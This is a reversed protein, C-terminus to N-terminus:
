MIASSHWHGHLFETKGDNMLLKDQIMWRRIKEISFEMARLADEQSTSLRPKFSLYLQTDDAYGHSDPLQDEIINFLKSAYIIFLLPGLCSGQPLGFRFTPITYRRNLNASRQQAPIISGIWFKEKFALSMESFAFCYKRNSLTM